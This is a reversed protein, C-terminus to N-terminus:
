PKSKMMEMLMKKKENIEQEKNNLEQRVVEMRESKEKSAVVERSSDKSPVSSQQQQHGLFRHEKVIKKDLSVDRSYNPRSVGQAMGIAPTREPQVSQAPKLSPTLSSGVPELRISDSKDM